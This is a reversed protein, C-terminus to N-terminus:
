FNTTKLTLNNIQWVSFSYLQNAIVLYCPMTLNHQCLRGPLVSVLGFHGRVSPNLSSFETDPASMVSMFIVYFLYMFM